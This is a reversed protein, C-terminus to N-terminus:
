SEHLCCFQSIECKALISVYVKGCSRYVNDCVLSLQYLPNSLTKCNAMKQGIEVNLWGYDM